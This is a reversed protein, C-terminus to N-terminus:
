LSYILYLAALWMVVASVKNLYLILRGSKDKKGLFRGVLALTFFWGWSVMVCALTFALKDNGQYSLSSTGIVGITDLIAHPNLLSIMLTYSIIKRISKLETNGANRENDNASSRWTIFGMYILFAFGGIVLLSKMWSLGMVVLSVGFVALLILLTDCLCATIVIPLVNILRKSVAGQTFIYFNQVGLPLILGFALIFGHIFTVIM